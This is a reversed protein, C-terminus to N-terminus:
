VAASAPHPRDAWRDARQNLEAYWNVFPWEAPRSLDLWASRCLQHFDDLKTERWSEMLDQLEATKLDGLAFHRAFGHDVPSVTGDSEIVLPSLIEAFPLDAGPEPQAFFQEPREALAERPLADFHVVMGDGALTQLRLSELFAASLEYPDPASDALEARARGIPELPHIQLLGAGQGAAFEAVWQLEDLNYQTLTFIFGFAIGADRLLPLRREMEQFARPSGRMLNHSEPRGDLSIAVLLTRDALWGVRREDLLMGNTTVTAALGANACGALLEPLPEYLLPEGGSISVVGYGAARAQPLARLLLDVPLREREQPASESYCHLCRLNCQKLPHIQLIRSDGTPAAM